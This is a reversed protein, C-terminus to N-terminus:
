NHDAMKLINENIWKALWLNMEKNPHDDYRLQYNATSFDPGIVKIFDIAPHYTTIGMENLKLGLRNSIDRNDGLPHFLFVFKGKPFQSSYRQKLYAIGDAYSQLQHDTFKLNDLPSNMARVVINALGMERMFNLFKFSTLDSTKGTLQYTEGVREYIPTDKDRWTLTNPANHWRSLQDPIFVYVYLGNQPTVINKLDIIDQLHMSLHLSGGIFSLNYTKFNPEIKQIIASLTNEEILGEGFAFSCGDLIIHSKSKNKFNSENARTYNNDLHYDVREGTKLNVTYWHAGRGRPYYLVDKGQSIVVYKRKSLNTNGGFNTVIALSILTTLFIVLSMLLSFVKSKFFKLVAGSGKVRYIQSEDM